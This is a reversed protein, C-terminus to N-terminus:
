PYQIHLDTGGQLRCPLQRSQRSPPSACVRQVSRAEQAPSWWRPQSWWAVLWWWVGAAGVEGGSGSVVVTASVVMGGVVVVGVVVGGVVVGGVVNGGVVVVGGVVIGGVVIGGVVM